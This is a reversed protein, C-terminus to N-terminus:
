SVTVAHAVTAGTAAPHVATINASGTSVATVVGNQSVSAV